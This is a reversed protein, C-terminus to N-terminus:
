AARDTLDGPEFVGTVAAGRSRLKEGAATLVFENVTIGARGAASFLNARFSETVRGGTLMVNVIPEKRVQKSDIVTNRM